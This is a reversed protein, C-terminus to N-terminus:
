STMLAHGLIHVTNQLVPDFIPSIYHGENGNLSPLLKNIAIKEKWTRKSWNREFDLLKYTVDKEQYDRLAMYESVITSGVTIM